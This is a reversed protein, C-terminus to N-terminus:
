CNVMFYQSNVIKDNRGYDSYDYKEIKSGVIRAVVSSNLGSVLVEDDSLVVEHGYVYVNSDDRLVTTYKVSKDLLYSTKEERRRYYVVDYDEKVLICGEAEEIKEIQRRVGEFISAVEEEERLVLGEEYEYWSKYTYIRTDTKVSSVRDHESDYSYSYTYNGQALEVLEDYENYSYTDIKGREDM